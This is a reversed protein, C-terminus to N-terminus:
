EGALVQELVAAAAGERNDAHRGCEHEHEDEVADEGAGHTLDGAVDAVGGGVHEDRLAVDGRHM